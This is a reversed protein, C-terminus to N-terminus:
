LVHLFVLGYFGESVTGEYCDVFCLVNLSALYDCNLLHLLFVATPVLADFKSFTFGQSFQGMSPEYFEFFDQQNCLLEIHNEFIELVVQILHIRLHFFLAFFKSFPLDLVSKEIAPTHNVLNESAKCMHMLIPKEM